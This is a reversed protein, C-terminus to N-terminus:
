GGGWDGVKKVEPDGEGKMERLARLGEPTIAVMVVNYLM